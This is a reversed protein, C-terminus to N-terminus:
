AAQLTEEFHVAAQVENAPVEFIRSVMSLAERDGGEAQYTAYLARTPVASKSLVPKGFQVGPDIVILKKSRAAPFWRRARDGEYEIGAYLSPKVVDKFAYQFSKLDLFEKDGGEHLAQLYITRGDTRFRQETFPHSSQFLERAHQLCRRVVLLPVGTKVFSRVIRLELLDLFGIARGGMDPDNAYQSEWLPGSYHAVRGGDASKSTYRYGRLWRRIERPESHILRAAEPLTYVGLGLEAMQVGEDALRVQSGCKDLHILRGISRRRLSGM